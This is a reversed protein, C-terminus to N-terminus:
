HKRQLVRAMRLMLEMEEGTDPTLEIGDLHREVILIRVTAM